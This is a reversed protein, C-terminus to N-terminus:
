YTVTYDEVEGYSFTGCAAPAGGYKMAIRM